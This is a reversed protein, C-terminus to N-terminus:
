IEKDLDPHTEHLIHLQELFPLRIFDDVQREMDDMQLLRVPMVM